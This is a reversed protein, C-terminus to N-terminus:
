RCCRPRSKARGSPSRSPTRSRKWGRVRRVVSISPPRLRADPLALQRPLDVKNFILVRQRDVFEALYRQDDDTFSTSADLMHLILDAQALSQHSRRIGEAEIEDAAERLGATDIFVV